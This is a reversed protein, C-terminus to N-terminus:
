PEPHAPSRRRSLGVILILLLAAAGAGAAITATPLPAPEILEFAVLTNKSVPDGSDVVGLLARHDASLEPGLCLGELNEGIKTTSLLLKKKVPTYNQGQLGAALSGQSVDTAGTLDVQYIRTEFIPLGEIASRELTLLTGDPLVVLDSLGSQVPEGLGTHIPDVVYAYQHTPKLLDEAVVFQVLRVVTGASRSSVPGDVSLAEENATWLEKGDPRRTLSELGRNDVQHMFVPPMALTQLLKGTALSYEYLAPPPPTAETSLFVSNRQDNTYAIGEYDRSTPVTVGGAVSAQDISGDRKFTVKLLVLHNSGDMVAAFKDGGLWTVGSLGVIKFSSGIQDAISDASLRVKGRYELNLTRSEAAISPPGICIVALISLCLSSRFTM